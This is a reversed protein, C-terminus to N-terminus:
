NPLGPTKEAGPALTDAPDTEDGSEVEPTLGATPETIDSVATNDVVGADVDAQTITYTATATAVQGPALVGIAGPWTIVPASVGPRSDSLTVSRTM